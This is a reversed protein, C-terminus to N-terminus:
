RRKLWRLPAAAVRVAPHRTLREHRARWRDREARMRDREAHLRGRDATVDALNSELEALREDHVSTAIAHLGRLLANAPAPSREVRATENPRTRRLVWVPETARAGVTAVLGDGLVDIPSIRPGTLGAGALRDELDRGYWRVHDAQGFRAVREEESADPDEDTDKAGRFPVQVLARGGPTLVRALERMAAHDDPVHELVHYCLVLDITQDAFPLQTMSAQVDVARGDADPDLDLRIYRAVDLRELHATTYRSPAIDLVVAARTLSPALGDLLVSLFRHRELAGCRPCRANPRARVGGPGFARVPQQCAPCFRHPLTSTADMPPRYRWPM